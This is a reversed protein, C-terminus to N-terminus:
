AEAPGSGGPILPDDDVDIVDDEEGRPTKGPIGLFFAHYSAYEDSPDLENAKAFHHQAERVLGHFVAPDGFLVEDEDARRRLIEALLAHALGHMVHEPVEENWQGGQELWQIAERAHPEAATLRETDLLIRALEMHPEPLRPETAIIERLLEEADDLEGRDKYALATLFRQSLADLAQGERQEYEDNM